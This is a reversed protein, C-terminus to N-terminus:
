GAGTPSLRVCRLIRAASAEFRLRSRLFPWASARQFHCPTSMLLRGSMGAAIQGIARELVNVECLAAVLAPSFVLESLGRAPLIASSMRLRADARVTARRIPRPLDQAAPSVCVRLLRPVRRSGTDRSGVAEMRAAVVTRSFGRRDCIANRNRRGQM